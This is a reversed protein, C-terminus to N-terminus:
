ANWYDCRGGGGLAIVRLREATIHHKARIRSLEDNRETSGFNSEAMLQIIDLRIKQRKM